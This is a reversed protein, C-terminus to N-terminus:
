VQRELVDGAALGPDGVLVLALRDRGFVAAGGAQEDRVEVEPLAGLPHAPELQAVVVPGAKPLGVAVVVVSVGPLLLAVTAISGCVCRESGGPASRGKSSFTM